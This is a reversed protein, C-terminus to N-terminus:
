PGEPMQNKVWGLRCLGAKAISGPVSCVGVAVELVAIVGSSWHAREKPPVVNTLLHGVHVCMHAKFLHSAPDLFSARINAHFILLQHIPLAPHHSVWATWCFYVM